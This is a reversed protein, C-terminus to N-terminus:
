LGGDPRCGGVLGRLAWKAAQILGLVTRLLDFALLLAV